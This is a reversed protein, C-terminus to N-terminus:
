LPGLTKGRLRGLHDVLQLDKWYERKEASAKALLTVWRPGTMRDLMDILHIDM